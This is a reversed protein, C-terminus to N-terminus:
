NASFLDLLVYEQKVGLEKLVTAVLVWAIMVIFIGIAARTLIGIYKKKQKTIEETPDSNYNLWLVMAGAFM